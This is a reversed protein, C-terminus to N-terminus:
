CTHQGSGLCGKCYGHPYVITGHLFGKLNEVDFQLKKLREEIHIGKGLKYVFLRQPIQTTLRQLVTQELSEFNIQHRHSHKVTLGKLKIVDAGERLKLSYSKAGLGVFAEINGNRSIKEEDWEGWIDGSPINQLRPDYIYIVSDTDHYLVREGLMDLADYLMLRGYAPVFLGAPLYLDHPVHTQNTPMTTYVTHNAQNQVNKLVLDDHEINSFLKTVTAHDDDHVFKMSTMNPRQCHKGWGSNLMIKFVLRLASRFAWRPFSKRVENGMGFKEEYANVLREQEEEDPADGSNALKEIYLDKVFDSWLAPKKNYEDFRHVKKLVYGKEIAKQVEVTTYTQEIIEELNAVRKGSEANWTVLVPHFLKKPPTMSVCIIGFSNMVVELSPQTEHVFMKIQRDPFREHAPCNCFNFVNGSKPAQHKTCPLYKPDYVHIMPLGTPYFLSKCAQVYPYMSVIDQYRIQIGRARDESSLRYHIRRVDTRGGILAQRAFWYEQPHLIGWHTKWAYNEIVNKRSLDDLSPIDMQQSLQWKIVSHCYSPATVYNWPSLHFKNVCIDHHNRMIEALIKVDDHCYQTLEDMFVWERQAREDYWENFKLVDDESNATFTLDFYKKDPIVGRYYYNAPTNFLHPFTGKKIKLDFAKALNSLSGPLHLLSDRFITTSNIKVEMFKSGTSTASTKVPINLKSVEELVLRTDYGSGNHAVCVNKGKNVNLMFEIFTQLSTDGFAEHVEDTFVNRWIVMNVMQMEQKGIYLKYEGTSSTEFENNSKVFRNTDEETVFCRSEIDYAWLAYNKGDYVGSLNFEANKPEYFIVCRHGEGLAADYGKQFQSGCLKCRSTCGSQICPKQNCTACVQVNIKKPVSISQCNCQDTYATVCVHCFHYNQYIFRWAAHPSAAGYHKTLPDWHIYLTKRRCDSTLRKTNPIFNLSHNRGTKTKSRHDRMQPLILTIRYEPFVDVFHFLQEMTVYEKWNM